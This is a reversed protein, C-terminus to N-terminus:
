DRQKNNRYWWSDNKWMWWSVPKAYVFQEKWIRWTRKSATKKPVEAEAPISYVEPENCDSYHPVPKHNGFANCNVCFYNRHLHQGNDSIKVTGSVETSRIKRGM